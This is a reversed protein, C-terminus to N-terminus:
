DRFCNIFVFTCIKSVTKFHILTGLHFQGDGFMSTFNSKLRSFEYLEVLMIM